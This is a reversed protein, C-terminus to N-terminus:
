IRKAGMLEIFRQRAVPELELWSAEDVDRRYGGELLLQGPGQSFETGNGDLLQLWEAGQLRDAVPSTQRAARRLLESVAAVKAAPGDASAAADFTSHWLRLRRRRRLGVWLAVLLCAAVVAAVLWWGPAPPWMPPTPPVHVDRLVLDPAQM